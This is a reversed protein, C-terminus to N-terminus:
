RKEKLLAPSPAERTGGLRLPSNAGPKRGTVAHGPSIRGDARRAEWAAQQKERSCTRGPKRPKQRCVRSLGAPEAPGPPDHAQLHGPSLPEARSLRLANLPHGAKRPM